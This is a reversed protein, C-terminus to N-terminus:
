SSAAAAADEDAASDGSEPAKDLNPEDENEADSEVIARPLEKKVAAKKPKAGSAVARGAKTAVNKPKAAAASGSSSKNTKTAKSSKSSGSKVKDVSEAEGVEEADADAAKTKKRPLLITHINPLVGSSAITAPILKNLEEDNRIALMIHRPTIRSRKNDKAANGALELVEATLYELVAAAYVAAGSGLRKAARAKRLYRSIRGVPFQLGARASRSQSKGGAKRGRGGKGGGFKGGSLTNGIQNLISSM